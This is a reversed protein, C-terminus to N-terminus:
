DDKSKYTEATAELLKYNCHFPQIKGSSVQKEYILNAKSEISNMYKRCFFYEKQMLIRRHEIDIDTSPTDLDIIEYQGDLVPFMKKIELVSLIRKKYYGYDASDIGMSRLKNYDNENVIIDYNDTKATRIDIVEYIRYNTATVDRWKKHKEKASTLPIVYQFNDRAILIGLHPKNEYNNGDVFLVENDVRHLTRLYDINVYVFKFQEFNM